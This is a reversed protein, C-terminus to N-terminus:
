YFDPTPDTATPLGLASRVLAQGLQQGAAQAAASYDSLGRPSAAAGSLVTRTLAAVELSPPGEPAARLAARGTVRVASGRAGPRGSDALLGVAHEDIRTLEIELCPLEENGSLAGNHALESRAGALAAAVVDADPIAGRAARVCWRTDSLARQTSRYGCGGVGLLGLLLVPLSHRWLARTTLQVQNLRRVAFYQNGSLVCVKARRTERSVVLYECRSAREPRYM